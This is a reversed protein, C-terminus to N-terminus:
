RFSIRAVAVVAATEVRLTTPGLDWRTYPSPIEDEGFGGEPGVVVVDVGEPPSAEGGPQCVVVRGELDSLDVLEGSTEVLWSGRSQEVAALMWSFVKPSSAVRNSGHRSKLWILRAVGMESLKEVLYRQRNKNSPPAVAVSVDYPRQRTEEAGREIVQHGLSGTGFTGLGDTYTVADGRKKRLVKSLHKWQVITLQLSEDAWPAAVVVHPVHRM